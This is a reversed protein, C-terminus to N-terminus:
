LEKGIVHHLEYEEKNNPWKKMEAKTATAM